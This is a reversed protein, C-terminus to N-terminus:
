QESRKGKTPLGQVFCLNKRDRFATEGAKQLLTLEVWRAYEKKSDYRVGDVVVPKNNYKHRTGTMEQYQKISINAM